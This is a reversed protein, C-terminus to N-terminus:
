CKFEKARHLGATAWKCLVGSRGATLASWNDAMGQGLSTVIGAGTVVIVPRGKKDRVHGSM